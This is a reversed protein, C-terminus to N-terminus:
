GTRGISLETVSWDFNDSKGTQRIFVCRALKAEATKWTVRSQAYYFPFGDKTFGIEGQFDASEFLAKGWDMILPDRGCETASYISLGRPFDGEFKGVELKVGALNIEQPFELYIWEAGSQTGKGSFWRTAPDSDKLANLLVENDSSKVTANLAAIKQFAVSELANRDTLLKLGHERLLAYSPSLLLQKNEKASALLPKLAEARAFLHTPKNFIVPLSITLLVAILVSLKKYSGLALALFIITVAFFCPALSIFFAGPIIRSLTAIPAIQSLKSPLINTDLLLMLALALAFLAAIRAHIAFASRRINLLITLVFIILAPYYFIGRVFARDIILLPPEPGLMPKLGVLTGYGPVTHTFRPYEPFSPVGATFATFFAFLFSLTVVAARLKNETASSLTTVYIFSLLLLIASLQNASLSLAVGLLMLIFLEILKPQESTFVKKAYLIHLPFWIFAGFIVSDFGCLGAIVLVSTVSLLAAQLRLIEFEVLLLYLGFAILAGAIAFFWGVDPALAALLPDLRWLHFANSGLNVLPFWGSRQDPFSLVLSDALFNTAGGAWVFILACAVLLAATLAFATDGFLNPKNM